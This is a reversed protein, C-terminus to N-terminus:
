PLRIMEVKDSKDQYHALNSTKYRDDANGLKFHTKQPNTDKKHENIASDQQNDFKIKMESRFPNDLSHHISTVKMIAQVSTPEESSM